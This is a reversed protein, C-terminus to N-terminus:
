SDNRRDDTGLLKRPCPTPACQTPQPVLNGAHDLTDRFARVFGKFDLLQQRKLIWPNEENPRTVEKAHEDFVAKGVMEWSRVWLSSKGTTPSPRNAFSDRGAGLASGETVWPHNLTEAGLSHSGAAATQGRPAVGQALSEGRGYTFDSSHALKQTQRMAHSHAPRGAM